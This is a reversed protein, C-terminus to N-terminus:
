GGICDLAACDGDRLGAHRATRVGDSREGGDYAQGPTPCLRNRIPCKINGYHGGSPSALGVSAGMSPDTTMWTQAVTCDQKPASHCAVIAQIPTLSRARLRCTRQQAALMVADGMARTKRRATTTDIVAVANTAHPPAVSVTPLEDPEMAAPPELPPDDVPVEALPDDLVPVEPLPVVALPEVDLPEDALPAEFLPEEALPAELLPAALPAPALPLTLVPEILLPEVVVPADLPVIPPPPWGGSV